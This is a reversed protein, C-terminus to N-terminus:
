GGALTVPTLTRWWAALVSLHPAVVVSSSGVFLGNYFCLCGCWRLRWYFCCRSSVNESRYHMSRTGVVVFRKRDGGIQLYEKNRQPRLPLHEVFSAMLAPYDTFLTAAYRSNLLEDLETRCCEADTQLVIFADLFHKVLIKCDFKAMEACILEKPAPRDHM